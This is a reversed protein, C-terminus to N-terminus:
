KMLSPVKHAFYHKLRYARTRQTLCSTMMTVMM